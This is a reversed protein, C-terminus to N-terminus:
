ESSSPSPCTAAAQRAADAQQQYWFTSADSTAPLTLGVQAAQAQVQPTLRAVLIDPKAPNANAATALKLWASATMAAVQKPEAAPCAAPTGHEAILLDGWAEVAYLRSSYRAYDVQPCVAQLILREQEADAQVQSIDIARQAALPPTPPPNKAYGQVQDALANAQRDSCRSEAAITTGSLAVALVAAIMLSAEGRRM